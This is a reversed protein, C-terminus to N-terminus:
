YFDGKVSIAYFCKGKTDLSFIDYDHSEPSVM